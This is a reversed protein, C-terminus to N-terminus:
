YTERGESFALCPQCSQLPIRVWSYTPRWYQIKTLKHTSYSMRHLNKNNSDWIPKWEPPTFSPCPIPACPDINAASFPDIPGNAWLWATFRKNMMPTVSCVFYWLLLWQVKSHCCHHHVKFILNQWHLM